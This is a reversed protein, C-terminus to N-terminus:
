VANTDTGLKVPIKVMKGQRVVGLTVTQGAQKSDIYSLLDDSTKVKVNDVSVVIDAQSYDVSQFTWPGQQRRVIQPGQVGAQMAPGNAELKVVRIGNNTQQVAEIGLDPRTIHHHAILEPVLRKAINIPIAFGIGASQGAQSLIATNIGVMEGSTDLLPGGSNGPNIAADTQIIGKILRGNGTSLTRGISSVIGQTLTRDLGFPNGIALVRRGVELDSSDGMPITSLKVGEPPTIKIVALDNSPDTGVVDAPVNTGDFLTVRLHKAGAVVHNNTLIYGDPSIISGSGFGEKPMVNFILDEPMAVTAVHVVAQNTDKYVKINTAEEPSIASSLHHHAVANVSTQAKGLSAVAHPSAASAIYGAQLTCTALACALSIKYRFIMQKM